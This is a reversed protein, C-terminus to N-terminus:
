SGERKQRLHEQLLLEADYAMTVAISSMTQLLALVAKGDEGTLSAEYQKILATILRQDANLLVTRIRERISRLKDDPIRSV